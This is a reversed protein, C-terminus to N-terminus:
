IRTCWFFRELMHKSQYGACKSQEGGGQLFKFHPSMFFSHFTSLLLLNSKVMPEAMLGTNSSAINDIAKDNSFPDNRTFCMFEKWVEWDELLQSAAVGVFWWRTFVPANMIKFKKIVGMKKVISEWKKMEEPEHYTHINYVGFLLQMTNSKWEGKEKGGEGIHETVSSQLCTQLNHISYSLILFNDSCVGLKM